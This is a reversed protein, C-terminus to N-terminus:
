GGGTTEANIYLRDVEDYGGSEVLSIWETLNQGPVVEARCWSLPPDTEVEYCGSWYSFTFLSRFLTAWRHISM